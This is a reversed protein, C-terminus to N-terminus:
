KYYFDILYSGIFYADSWDSIYRKNLPHISKLKNIAKYAKIMAKKDANGKGTAFKKITGIPITYVRIREEFCVSLVIGQLKSLTKEARGKACWAVEEVGVISPKWTRLFSGFSYYFRQLRIVEDEPVSNLILGSVISSKTDLVLACFGCLSPDVGIVRDNKDTKNIKNM